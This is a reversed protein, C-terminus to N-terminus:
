ITSGNFCSSTRRPAPLGPGKVVTRLDHVWQLRDLVGDGYLNEAKVVPRLAREVISYRFHDQSAAANEAINEAIGSACTTSHIRSFYVAITESRSSRARLRHPAASALDSPQPPM